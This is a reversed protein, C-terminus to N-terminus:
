VIPQGPQLGSPQNAYVNVGRAEAGLHQEKMDRVAVAGIEVRMGLALKSWALLLLILREDRAAGGALGQLVDGSM